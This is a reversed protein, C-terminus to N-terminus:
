LPWGCHRGAGCCRAGGPGACSAFSLVDRAKGKELNLCEPFFLFEEIINLPNMMIMLIKSFDCRVFSWNKKCSGDPAKPAAKKEEETQPNKTYRLRGCQGLWLGPQSEECRTSDIWSDMSMERKYAKLSYAIIYMSIYSNSMCCYCFHWVDIYPSWHLASGLAFFKMCPDWFLSFHEIGATM